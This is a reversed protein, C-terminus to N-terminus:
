LTLTGMERLAMAVAQESTCKAHWGLDGIATVDLTFRPVDGPWGGQTGSYLYRVNTLGMAQVVMDAMRNVTVADSPGVNYIALPQQVHDVVFQMAEVCESVHLYSKAQKGNGLIELQTPNARLKLVFDSLVTRGTKRTKSGVVNALRYIACRMDFLHQFACILGECALKSAGYLSIPRCAQGEPIPQQDSLGYVASTSTFALKTVCNRRMSELVYYTALVNQNLDKDTRDTPSFKVDPNAALHWVMDVERLSSQLLDFDLLDGEILAFNSSNLLPAIHEFKGSSFNDYVTVRDGRALLAHALESGVCGAGGTVLARV